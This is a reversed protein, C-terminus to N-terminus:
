KLSININLCITCRNRLFEESFNNFPDICFAQAITIVTSIALGIPAGVLARLGANKWLQRNM